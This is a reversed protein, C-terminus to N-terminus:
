VEVRDGILDAGRVYQRGCVLLEEAPFRTIIRPGDATVVIEEEIRAAGSGDRTACYTELAFVMGEEIVIPDDFSNLRSIMPAEYLGVGIGHGFQLGFCSEESPFGLEQATPWVSAIRDTTVGPRVLEIADDLWERCQKYADIQGQNTGGVSFTRYYCTRYGMFSHIIDFFAQDGPRLLRDSFVHPHPACRDGSVANIAEVQESGLEFLLRQTDAVIEHERVGPRLTEYINQYAADVIGAAHDLLAIEDATKIKRASQMIPAADGTAIGRRHLSALTEMDTLDIGVPKDLLGHDDLVDYIHGALLDPVGSERPMAGRMSTVGAQWSSEPLWPAYLQHHKAASGFDWLVPDGNRPLLVCRASKDRAWEGIHTSTVYRINNQDFLLVAGLESAELAAKARALRDSRLRSFDVRQEWDVAMTAGRSAINM